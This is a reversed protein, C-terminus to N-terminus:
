RGIIELKRQYVKKFLDGNLNGCYIETDAALGASVRIQVRDTFIQCELDRVLGAEQRDLGEALRLLAALKKINNIDELDLLDRHEQWFKRYHGPEHLSAILACYILEKHTLGNLGYNLILYYSHEPHHYYDVVLGCDHLLATLGLIKREEEDLGHLPRLEDFLKLSLRRVQRAHELDLDYFRIFNAISFDLVNEVVPPKPAFLQQYFLGERLGSGSVLLEEAKLADVLCTIVAAGGVIIDARDHSLGGMELRQRMSSLALDHYIDSLRDASLSYYHLTGLSYRRMRRDIKALARITGGVGIIEGVPRPLKNVLPQIQDSIAAKMQALEEALPPDHKLFRESLNVAGIPLSATQLLERERFCAIETSGGGVDVVIGDSVAMTNIVGLYALYAEEQGSIVRVSIGLEQELRDLIEQGNAARRLAETGVAVIQNVGNILCLQRFNHMAKFLRKVALQDVLESHEMGGVLRINSKAETLMKYAGDPNVEMIILRGSNSGLDIIGMRTAEGDVEM